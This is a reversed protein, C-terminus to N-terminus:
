EGRLFQAPRTSLASWTTLMGTLITLAVAATVVLALLGPDLRFSIELVFSVFAWAGLGGLLTALLASLVGLLGYEVLYAIVVDRRTAGLVKM